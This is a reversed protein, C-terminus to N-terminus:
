GVPSAASFGFSQLVMAVIISGTIIIVPVILFKLRERRAIADLKTNLDDRM